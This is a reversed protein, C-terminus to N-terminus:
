DYSPRGPDSFSVKFKMLQTPGENAVMVSKLLSDAYGAISTGRPTDPAGILVSKVPSYFM